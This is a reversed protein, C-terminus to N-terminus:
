RPIWGHATTLSGRPRVSRQWEKQADACENRAKPNRLYLLVHGLHDRLSEVFQEAPEKEFGAASFVLLVRTEAKPHLRRAILRRRYIPFYAWVSRASDRLVMVELKTTRLTLLAEACLESLVRLVCDRLCHLHEDIQWEQVLFDAYTLTGETSDKM